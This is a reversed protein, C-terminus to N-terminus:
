FLISMYQTSQSIGVAGWPSPVGVINKFSGKAYEGYPHAAKWTKESEINNPFWCKDTTLWVDTVDGSSSYSYGDAHLTEKVVLIGALSYGNISTTRNSYFAAETSVTGVLFSFVMAFSIFGFLKKKM